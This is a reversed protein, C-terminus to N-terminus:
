PRNLGNIDEVTFGAMLTCTAQYGAAGPRAPAADARHRHGTQRAPIRHCCWHRREGRPRRWHGRRTDGGASKSMSAKSSLLPQPKPLPQTGKWSSSSNSPNLNLATTVLISVTRQFPTVTLKRCKFGHQSGKRGARRDDMGGLLRVSGCRRQQGRLASSEPRQAPSVCVLQQGSAGSRLWQDAM